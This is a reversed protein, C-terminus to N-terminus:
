LSSTFARSFLREVDVFCLLQYHIEPFLLPLMCRDMDVPGCHLLHFAELEETYVDCMELRLHDVWVSLTTFFTCCCLCLLVEEVEPPQLFTAQVWLGECVKVSACDLADQQATVGGPVAFAGGVVVLKELPLHPRCLVDGSRCYM